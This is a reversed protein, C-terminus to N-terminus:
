MATKEMLVVVMMFLMRQLHLIKILLPISHQIYGMQLSLITIPKLLMTKTLGLKIAQPVGTWSQVRSSAEPDVGANNDWGRLFKGRFDPVNFTTNGDGNGYSTGIVAFL